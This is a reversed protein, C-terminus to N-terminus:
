PLSNKFAQYEQDFTGTGTCGLETRKAQIDQVRNGPDPHTSLFTPPNSSNEAEILKQFFAAAGDARYDTPCLYIVSYDDAEEENSRSFKLSALAGAIEAITNPNGGTAVDLLLQLGYIKTLQDTSHRRDAHAIEHGMVGALEHEASLFKILGTYIYIYGGPTAFANLVSDNRIIKISWAFQDKYFVKGSNLIKNRMNNIYAYAAPYQTESLVPFQVTDKAIEDAVQAGLKKDDEITFINISSDDPNEKKCGALAFLIIGSILISKKM